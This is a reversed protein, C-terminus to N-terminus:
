LKINRLAAEQIRNFVTKKIFEFSGESISKQVITKINALTKIEYDTFTSLGIELNRYFSSCFYKNTETSMKNILLEKIKSKSIIPNNIWIVEKQINGDMETQTQLV